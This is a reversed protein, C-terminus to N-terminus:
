QYKRILEVVDDPRNFGKVEIEMDSQGASSIAIDGVGIMRQFINQDMQINRVDDHQVESSMKSIIGRRYITRETTVILERFRTEIYWYLLPLGAGAFAIAGIIALGGAPIIEAFTGTLGALVCVAGAMVILWLSVLKLPAMGFMSPNSKVVDTEVDAAGQATQKRAKETNIQSEPVLNGPPPKVTFPKECEPNPCNVAESILGADVTTQDGCHPCQYVLQTSAGELVQTTDSM